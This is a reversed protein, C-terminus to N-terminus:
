MMDGGGSSTSHFLLFPQGRTWPQGGVEHHFPFSAADDDVITGEGM